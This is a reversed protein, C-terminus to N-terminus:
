FGRNMQHDFRAADKYSGAGLYGWNPNYINTVPPAIRTNQVRLPKATASAAAVVMLGLALFLTVKTIM